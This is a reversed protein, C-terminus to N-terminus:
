KCGDIVSNFPRTLFLSVCLRIYNILSALYPTTLLHGLILSLDAILPPPARKFINRLRRVADPSPCECFLRRSFSQYTPCEYHVVIPPRPGNLLPGSRGYADLISCSLRGDRERERICVSTARGVTYSIVQISWLTGHQGQSTKCTM